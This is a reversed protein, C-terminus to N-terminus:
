ALKSVNVVFKIWVSKTEPLKLNAVSTNFFRSRFILWCAILVIFCYVQDYAPASKPLPRVRKRLSEVGQRGLPDGRQVTKWYVNKTISGILKRSAGKAGIDALKSPSRAGFFRSNKTLTKWFNSLFAKRPTNKLIKCRRLFNPWFLSLVAKRSNLFWYPRGLFPDVFIKFTKQFDAGGGRSFIRSRGRIM